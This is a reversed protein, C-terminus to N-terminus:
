LLGKAPFSLFARWCVGRGGQVPPVAPAPSGSPGSRPRRCRGHVPTATALMGGARKSLHVPVSTSIQRPVTSVPSCCEVGPEERSRFLVAGKLIFQKKMEMLM